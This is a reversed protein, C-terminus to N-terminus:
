RDMALYPMPLVMAVRRKPRRFRRWSCCCARHRPAPSASRSEPKVCSRNM